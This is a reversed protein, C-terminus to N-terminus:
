VCLPLPTSFFVLVAVVDAETNTMDTTDRKKIEGSRIATNIKTYLSAPAVEYGFRFDDHM